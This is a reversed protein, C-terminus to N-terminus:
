TSHTKKNVSLGKLHRKLIYCPRPPKTTPYGTLPMKTPKEWYDNTEQFREELRGIGNDADLLFRDIQDYGDSLAEAFIYIRWYRFYAEYPIRKFGDSCEEPKFVSPVTKRRWAKTNLVDYPHLFSEPDWGENSHFFRNVENYFDSFRKGNANKPFKILLDPKLMRRALMEVITIGYPLKEIGFQEKLYQGFHGRIGCSPSCARQSSRCM